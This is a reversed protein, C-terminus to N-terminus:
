LCLNMRALHKFSHDQYWNKLVSAAWIKLKGKLTQEMPFGEAMWLQVIEEEGFEYDKPVLSCYAFCQKLQSPLYYYSLWLAPIIDSGHQPLNWIDSELIVKWADYNVNTRLLGGITKTALPLGGCKKLIELSIEKLDPHGTFDERELANHALMRLSDEESLCQLSYDAANTMISSVKSSRTTVIIKSGPEGADFPSRLALWHNYNDNWVDDLVLLFKKGWLKEKLKVQLLNLNNMDCTESTVSLLITKTIRIIDFEDSVCVRSGTSFEHKKKNTVSSGTM